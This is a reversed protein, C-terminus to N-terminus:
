KEDTPVEPTYGEAIEQDIKQSERATLHLVGSAARQELLLRRKGAYDSYEEYRAQQIQEPPTPVYGPDQPIGFKEKTFRQINHGLAM